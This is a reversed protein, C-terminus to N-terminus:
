VNLTAGSLTGYALFNQLLHPFVEDKIIFVAIGAYASNV